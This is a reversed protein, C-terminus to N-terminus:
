LDEQMDAEIDERVGRFDIEHESSNNREAM